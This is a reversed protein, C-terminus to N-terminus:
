RGLHALISDAVSARARALRARGPAIGRPRARASPRPKSVRTAAALVTEIGEGVVLTHEGAVAQRRATQALAGAHASAGAGPARVREGDARHPPHRRLRRHRHRFLALLCPHRIGAGFPCNPHFRLVAADGSPLQDVDIHRFTLYDAARTGAIPQAADWLKRARELTKGDDEIEAAPRQRPEWCALADQAATFSLGEVEMLWSIADGHAGCAFCHYHDHYIHCSPTADDHFPCCVKNHVLPEGVVDRLSVQIESDFNDHAFGNYRPPPPTPTPTELPPPDRPM